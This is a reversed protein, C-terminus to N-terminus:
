LDGSYGHKRIVLTSLVLTMSQIQVQDFNIQCNSDFLYRFSVLFVFLAGCFSSCFLTASLLRFWSLFFSISTFTV